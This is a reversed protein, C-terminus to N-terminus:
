QRVSIQCPHAGEARDGGGAVRGGSVQWGNVGSHSKAHTDIAARRSLQAPKLALFLCSARVVVGSALQATESRM